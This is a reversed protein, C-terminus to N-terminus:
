QKSVDFWYDDQFVYYDREQDFKGEMCIYGDVESGEYLEARMDDLGAVSANRFEKSFTNDAYDFSTVSAYYSEDKGTLDKTSKVKFKALILDVGDDYKNHPNSNKAIQMAEDGRIVELLTVEVECRRTTCKVTQGILAPTKRTGILDTPASSSQAIAGTASPKVVANTQGAQYGEEYGAQYAEAYIADANVSPPTACGMMGVGFVVVLVLFVSKKM